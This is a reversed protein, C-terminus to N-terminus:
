GASLEWLRITRDFGATALLKGSPSFAVGYITNRHAVARVLETRDAADWIRVMGDSGGGALWEGGPSFALSRIRPSGSEFNDTAAGDLTWFRIRGEMDASALLEGRLKGKQPAFAVAEVHANHGTLVQRAQKAEVDWLRVTRDNGGSAVLGGNPAVAVSLVGGEHGAMAAVGSATGADWLRVTKDFGGSAALTGTPAVAACTLYDQHGALTAKLAGDASWVKLSKDLSATVIRGDPLYGVFAVGDGHGKLTGVHEGTAVKWLKVTNDLSATALQGGDNSFAAWYVANNHTLERQLELKIQQIPM